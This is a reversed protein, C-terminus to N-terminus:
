QLTSWPNSLDTEQGVGDRRSFIPPHDSNAIDDIFVLEVRSPKDNPVRRPGCEVPVDALDNGQFQICFFFLNRM